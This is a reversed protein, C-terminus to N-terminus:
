TGQPPDQHVCLLVAHLVGISPDAADFDASIRTRIRDFARPDEERHLVQVRFGSQELATVHDALRWRPLDGPDLFRRWTKRSFQLFHLPYKFFHDRYDVVHLMAGGKSLCSKMQSFAVAPQHLHELVSHSVILDAQGSGVSAISACRCVAAAVPEPDRHKESTIKTLLMVDLEPDFDVYPEVCWVQSAGTCVLAYGAGNTSGSGVEVIRKAEVSRSSQALWARYLECVAEPQVETLNTRYFPLYRGVRQLDTPFLFRRVLRLTVYELNSLFLKSM